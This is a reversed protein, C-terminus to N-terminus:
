LISEGRLIRLIMETVFEKDSVKETRVYRNWSHSEGCNTICYQEYSDGFCDCRLCCPEEHDATYIITKM